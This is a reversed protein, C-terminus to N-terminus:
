SDHDNQSNARDLFDVQEAIVKHRRRATGDKAEWEDLELRGQVGVRSGKSLYRGCIGALGQFATLDIFVAGRDEGDRGKRRQVALRMDCIETEGATRHQPEATLRGTLTITNM